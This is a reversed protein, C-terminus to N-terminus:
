KRGTGGAGERGAGERRAAAAYGVLVALVAASGVVLCTTMGSHRLLWAGAFAGVLMLAVAGARRGIRPNEGGALGSDAALGTITLTLVTTTMDPLALRRVTANRCGMALALAAIVAYREGTGDVSATAAILTALVTGAAEVALAASVWHRRSRLHLALRGGVVAGALFGGLSVASAAMSFGATGAAAFGLIVVNGTMNATFVHGLGIYSVADLFGSVLTLCALAAVLGRGDAAHAPRAPTRGATDTASSM